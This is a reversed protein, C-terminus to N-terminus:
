FIYQFNCRKWIACFDEFRGSKHSAFEALLATCDDAFGNTKRDNSM